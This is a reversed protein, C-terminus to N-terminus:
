GHSNSDFGAIFLALCPATFLFTPESCAFPMADVESRFNPRHDRLPCLQVDPVLMMDM